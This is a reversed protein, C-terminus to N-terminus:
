SPLRLHAFFTSGPSYNTLSVALWCTIAITHIWGILSIDSIRM